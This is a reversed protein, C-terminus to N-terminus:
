NSLDIRKDRGQLGGTHVAVITKGKDFYGQEILDFIGFMMKATYVQELPIQTTKEFQQMFQLLAPKTKAYGGFHYNTNLSLNSPLETQNYKNLLTAVEDLIFAGNKLVPFGIVQTKSDRLSEAIGALTGGTGAACCIYDYNMNIFATIEQTGKVALANSGGEPISYVDGFKSKLDALFDAETKSRYATRSVFHLHMGKATADTLTDNLTEGAEGRIVGISKLGYLKAATATAHIHNSYAGGFTLITDYGLDLAEQLNYKLKFWKNGSVELHTLDTRLVFLRLGAQEIAPYFVEQLPLHPISNFVLM